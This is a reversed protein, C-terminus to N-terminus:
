AKRRRRRALTLASLGVLFAANPEPVQEVKYNDFLGFVLDATLDANSISAFSDLLTLSGAGAISVATLHQDLTGLFTSDITFSATGAVSDALITMTHWGFAITGNFPFGSIGQQIPPQQAPFPGTFFFNPDGSTTSNVNLSIISPNYYGTALGQSSADIDLRWDTAAGGEITTIASAGKRPAIGSFGVGGGAYETGASGLDSNGWFDFTVRYQGSFTTTTAATIAQIAGLANAALRLGTTTGGGNPSAPIGLPSYDYGFTALSSPNTAEQFVNWGTNSDLDSQFLIQAESSAQLCLGFVAAAAVRPITPTKTTM